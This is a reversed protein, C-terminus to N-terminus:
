VLVYKLKPRITPPPPPNRRWWPSTAQHKQHSDGAGALCYIACDDGCLPLLVVWCCCLSSGWGSGSVGATEETWESLRPDGNHTFACPCHRAYFRPFSVFFGGLDDFLSLPSFCCRRYRKWTEQGQQEGWIVETFTVYPLKPCSPPVGLPKERSASVLWIGLFPYPM